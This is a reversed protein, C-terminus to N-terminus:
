DRNVSLLATTVPSSAPPSSPPPKPAHPFKPPYHSKRIKITTIPKKQTYAYTSAWPIAYNILHISSTICWSCRLLATLFDANMFCFASSSTWNKRISRSIEDLWSNGASGVDLNPGIKTYFFLQNSDLNGTQSVESYATNIESPGFIEVDGQQVWDELSVSLLKPTLNRIWIGPSWTHPLKSSKIKIKNRGWIFYIGQTSAKSCQSSCLHYISNPSSSHEIYSRFALKM